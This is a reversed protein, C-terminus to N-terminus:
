LLLMGGKWSITVCETAERSSKVCFTGERQLWNAGSKQYYIM